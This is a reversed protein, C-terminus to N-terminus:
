PGTCDPACADGADPNGDDCVEGADVIGDNCRPITCNTRCFSRRTQVVLIAEANADLVRQERVPDIVTWSAVGEELQTNIPIAYDGPWPLGGIVGGDTNDNFKWDGVIEGASVFDFEEPRDDSIAVYAGSPLESFSQTVRARSQGGNQDIGHITFLAVERPATSDVYLFLRSENSAELGTHSSASRYDYFASASREAAFPGLGRIEGGQVVYAAPGDDNTAGGDCEEGEQIIGDGCKAATCRRTCDGFNDCEEGDQVIGDGCSAVACDPTCLADPDGPDCPEFGARVFGDGCTAFQCGGVCADDDRDNADDCAEGEDVIGDGCFPGRPGVELTSTEGTLDTRAGCSAVTLAASLVLTARLAIRSTRM